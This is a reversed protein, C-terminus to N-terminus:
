RSRNLQGGTRRDVFTFKLSVLARGETEVILPEKCFCAIM